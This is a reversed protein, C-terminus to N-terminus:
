WHENEAIAVQYVVVLIVDYPINDHGPGSIDQHKGRWTTEGDHGRHM